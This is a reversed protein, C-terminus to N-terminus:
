VHQRITEQGGGADGVRQTKGGHEDAGTDGCCECELHIQVVDAAFTLQIDSHDSGRPEAEKKALVQWTEDHDWEYKESTRQTACHPDDNGRPHPCTKACALDDGGQQESIDCGAQDVVEDVSGATIEACWVRHERLTTLDWIYGVNKM